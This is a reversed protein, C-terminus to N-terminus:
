SVSVPELARAAALNEGVRVRTRMPVDLKAVDAMVREVESLVKSQNKADIELILEDRLQMAFFAPLEGQRVLRHLEVMAAKILDAASAQIAANRAVREATSRIDSNRSSLEPLNRRRGKISVVWGEERAQQLQSEFYRRVGKYRSYFRDLYVGIQHEADLPSTGSGRALRHSGISGLVADVGDRRMQATMQDHELNHVTASISSEVDEGRVFSRILEAEQSLHAALRLQLQCYSVGVLIHNKKAPTLAMLLLQEMEAQLEPNALAEIESLLRNFTSVTGGVATPGM